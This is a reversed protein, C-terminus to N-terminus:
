PKARRPARKEIERGLPDIAEKIKKRDDSGLADIYGITRGAARSFPPTEPIWTPEPLLNVVVKSHSLLGLRDSLTKVVPEHFRVNGVPVMSGAVGLYQIHPCLGGGRLKELETIFTTVAEASLTDFITPILVHTSACLAQVCGTSLRPPADIIIRDYRTQVKPDLLLKALSYPMDDPQDRILWEIMLRNEVQGLDYFTTLAFLSPANPRPWANAILWDADKDGLIAKSAPSLAGEPRYKDRDTGLVMSSLSGQYDLDILLVREGNVAFYGALNASITTKGVGGKLNALTIIPISARLKLAYEAPPSVPKTLWIGHDATVANRIRKLSARATRGWLWLWFQSLWYMVLPALLVALIEVTVKLSLSGVLATLLESLSTLQVSFM